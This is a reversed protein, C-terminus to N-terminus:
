SSRGRGMRDDGGAAAARRRRGGEARAAPRDRDRRQAARRPRDAGEGARPMAPCVPACRRRWRGAASTRRPAARCRRDPVARAPDGTALATNMAVQYLKPTYNTTTSARCWRARASRKAWGCCCGRGSRPSIRATSAAGAHRAARGARAAAAISLWRSPLPAAVRRMLAEVYRGDAQGFADAALAGERRGAPGVRDLSRRASLPCRMNRSCRRISRRRRARRPTPRRDIPTTRPLPQSM